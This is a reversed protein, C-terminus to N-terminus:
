QEELLVEVQTDKTSCSSDTRSPPHQSPLNQIFFFALGENNIRLTHPPFGRTATRIVDFNCLYANGNGDFQRNERIYQLLVPSDMVLVPVKGNKAYTDRIEQIFVTTPVPEKPITNGM